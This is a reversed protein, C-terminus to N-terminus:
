SAVGPIEGIGLARAMARLPAAKGTFLTFSAAGQRLLVETGDRANLGRRRAAAVLPTGGPSYVLDLLAGGERLAGMMAELITPPFPNEPLGLSTAHVGLLCNGPLADLPVVEFNARIGRSVLERVLNKGKELDRGAIYVPDAGRDALAGAAARAVGGTGLLLAPGEPAGLSELTERIARGDTNHGVARGRDFTVANVAGCQVAEPSVEDVLAFAREKHPVTVNAGVAGLARLGRLAEPFHAADVRFALYRLDLGLAEFAAHHMRPSLSHSVPDGLLAVLGTM